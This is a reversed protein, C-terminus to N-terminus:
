RQHHFKIANLKIRDLFTLVSKYHLNFYSRNSLITNEVLKTQRSAEGCAPKPKRKKQTPSNTM